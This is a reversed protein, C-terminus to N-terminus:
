AVVEQIVPLEDDAHVAPRPLTLLVIILLFASLAMYPLTVFGLKEFWVFNCPIAPNCVTSSELEPFRELLYHYTSIGAGIAALPVAYVRIGRDRRVAAILLIVALPYMAIRQYWCLNCPTFNAVESFYLSGLTATAAVLWAWWLVVPDVAAVLGRAGGRRAVLHAVLLVVTTINCLIALLAFFLQLTETM